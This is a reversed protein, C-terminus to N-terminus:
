ISHSRRPARRSNGSSPPPGPNWFIQKNGSWGSGFPTMDQVVFGLKPDDGWDEAEFNPDPLVFLPATLADTNMAMTQDDAARPLFVSDIRARTSAGAVTAERGHGSFSTSVTAVAFLALAILFKTNRSM